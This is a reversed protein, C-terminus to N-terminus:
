LDLLELGRDLFHTALGRRGLLLVDELELRLVLGVGILHSRQLLLNSFFHAVHAGLVLHLCLGLAAVVLELNVLQFDTQTCALLGDDLKLARNKLETRAESLLFVDLHLKGGPLVVVIAHLVTLTLELDLKLTRGAVDVLELLFVVLRLGGLELHQLM